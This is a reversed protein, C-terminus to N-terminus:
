GRVIDEDAVTSFVGRGIGATQAIVEGCDDTRLADKHVDFVDDGALVEGLGDVV